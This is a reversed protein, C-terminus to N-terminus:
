PLNIRNEEAWQRVTQAATEHAEAADGMGFEENSNLIATAISQILSNHQQETLTTREDDLPTLDVDFEYFTTGDEDEVMCVNENQSVIRVPTNRYLGNNVEHTPKFPEPEDTVLEWDNPYEAVLSSVQKHLATANHDYVEGVTFYKEPYGKQTLLRYRKQQEIARGGNLWKELEQYDSFEEVFCDGTRNDCGVYKEGDKAWFQRRYELITRKEAHDKIRAHIFDLDRKLPQENKM